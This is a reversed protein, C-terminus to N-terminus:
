CGFRSSDSWTCEGNKVRNYDAASGGWYARGEAAQKRESEQRAASGDDYPKDSGSPPPSSDGGITPSSGSSAGGQASRMLARLGKAARVWQTNYSKIYGTVDFDIIEGTAGNITKDGVM